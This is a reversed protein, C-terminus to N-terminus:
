FGGYGDDDRYQARDNRRGRGYSSGGGQASEPAGSVLNTVVGGRGAEIRATQGQAGTIKDKQIEAYRCGDSDWWLAIGVEAMEYISRAGKMDFPSPKNVKKPDRVTVQSGLWLQVGCEKATDKLLQTAASLRQEASDHRDATRLLQVYDVFAITVGREAAMRRITHCATEVSSPHEVILRRSWEERDAGAVRFIKTWDDNTLASPDSCDVGAAESMLRSSNLRDPDEISLRLTTHGAAVYRGEMWQMVYSKGTQSFGYILGLAGATHGGFAKSFTGLDAKPRVNGSEDRVRETWERVHDGMTKVHVADAGGNLREVLRLAERLKEAAERTQGGKAAGHASRTAEQLVQARAVDVLDARAGDLTHFGKSDLLAHVADPGGVQDLRGVERLEGVVLEATVTPAEASVALIARYIPRETAGFVETPLMTRRAELSPGDLLQALFVRAPDATVGLLESM